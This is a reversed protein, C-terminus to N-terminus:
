YAGNAHEARLITAVLQLRGGAWAGARNLLPARVGSLSHSLTRAASASISGPRRARIQAMRRRM